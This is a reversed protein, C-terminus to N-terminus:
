NSNQFRVALQFKQTKNYLPRIRLTFNSDVKKLSILSKCFLIGFNWFEM